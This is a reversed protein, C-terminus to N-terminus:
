KRPQLRYGGLTSVIKWGYPAIKRRMRMIAQKVNAPPDRPARGEPWMKTILDATQVSGPYSDVLSTILIRVVFGLRLAPLVGIPVGMHVQLTQRCAPCRQAKLRPYREGHANYHGDTLGRM